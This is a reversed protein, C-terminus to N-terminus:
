LSVTLLGILSANQVDVYAYWWHIVPLIFKSRSRNKWTLTKLFLNKFAVHHREFYLWMKLPWSSGLQAMSPFFIEAEISTSLSAICASRKIFWLAYIGSFQVRASNNGTIITVSNSQTLFLSPKLLIFPSLFLSFVLVTHTKNKKISNVATVNEQM